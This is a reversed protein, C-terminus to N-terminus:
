APPFNSRLIFNQLAELTILLTTRDTVNTANVVIEVDKSTTSTDVAAEYENDGKNLGYYYAM